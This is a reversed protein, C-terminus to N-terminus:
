WHHRLGFGLNTAEGDMASAVAGYVQTGGGLHQGAILGFDTADGDVVDDEFDDMKLFLNAFTGGGLDAKATVLMRDLDFEGATAVGFPDDIASNSEYALGVTLMGADFQGSVLMNTTDGDDTSTYAATVSLPGQNFFIGASIDVWDEEEAADGDGSLAAEFRLGGMDPSHYQLSQWRSFEFTRFGWAASAGTGADFLLNDGGYFGLGARKHPTDHNGGLITGFDGQIGAYSNRASLTGGPVTLASEVQWIGTMGNDMPASGKFGLRSGYSMQDLGDRDSIDADKVQVEYGLQGYFDWDNGAMVAMPSAMAAATAFTVFHKKM